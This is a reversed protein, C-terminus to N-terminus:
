SRTRRLRGLVILVLATLVTRRIMRTRRRPVVARRRLLSGSLWLGGALYSLGGILLMIAGGLHQDDLASHGSSAALPQLAAAAGARAARRAADHADLHAAARGRRRRNTHGTSASEGGVAALWVLLGSVLFTGQEAVLGSSTTRALHHLVRRTGPGSSSCNWARVRPDPPVGGSVPPDPRVGNRLDRLRAAAGRRRGGGHADDHARQLLAARARAAPRALRRRADRTGRAAPRPPDSATRSSSPSSRRCLRRRRREAGLAAVDRLRPLPSPRATLRRRAADGAASVTRAGAWGGSSGSRRSRWARHLRRDDARVTDFGAVSDPHKACWIAATAYCLMFHLAWITPSCRWCWLSDRM